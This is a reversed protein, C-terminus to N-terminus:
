RNTFAFRTGSPAGGGSRISRPRVAFGSLPDGTEIEPIGRSGDDLARKYYFKTDLDISLV